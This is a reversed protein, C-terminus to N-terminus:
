GQILFGKEDSRAAKLLNHARCLLQLNNIENEGKKSFPKRHDIQLGYTSGCVRGTEKNRFVCRGGDRKWVAARTREPIYRSRKKHEPKIYGRNTRESKLNEKKM